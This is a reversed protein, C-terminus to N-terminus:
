ASPDARYSRRTAVHRFGLTELNAASAGGEIASAGILDAGLQRAREARHSILARQIGRGRYSELVSGARLWGMGRHLHLSGAGVPRGDIEAVFRHHHAVRALHHELDRWVTAITDPMASASVIMEAWRGLEHRPLERIRVEGSMPAEDIPEIAYRALTSDVVANPWPPDDTLLWGTVASGRFHDLAHRVLNPLLAFGLASNFVPGPLQPSASVAIEGDHLIQIPYGAARAAEWFAVASEREAADLRIAITFREADDTTPPQLRIRDGPRVTGERVVRAYMRSDTPHAKISLRGFRLDSFSHRITRCPNTPQSIELVVEGGIALRTGVALSSVDFGSVTLNEGTSGPRIPHGEAAVRRIAEIGLISVARHPGGHVTEARQRDGEVGRHTVRAGDVPLKPVGGASVNIRLLRGDSM